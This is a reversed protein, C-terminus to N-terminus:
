SVLLAMIEQLYKMTEEDATGMFKLAEKIEDIKSIHRTTLIKQEGQGDRGTVLRDTNVEIVEFEEGTKDYIVRDGVKLDTSEKKDEKMTEKELKEKVKHAIKEALSGDEGAKQLDDAHKKTTELEKNLDQAIKIDEDDAETQLDQIEKSTKKTTELEKNMEKQRDIDEESAEPVILEHMEADLRKKIEKHIEKKHITKKKNM